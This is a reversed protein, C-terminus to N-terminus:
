NNDDKNKPRKITKLIKAKKPKEEEMNDQLQYKNIKYRNPFDSPKKNEKQFLHRQICSLINHLGDETHINEHAYKMLTEIKEKSCFEYWISNLLSEYLNNQKSLILLFDLLTDEKDLKLNDNEIISKISEFHSEDEAFKILKKILSCFHFAIFDIERSCKEVNM